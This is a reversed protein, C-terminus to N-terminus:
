QHAAAVVLGNSQPIDFCMGTERDQLFRAPDKANSQMGISIRKRRIMNPLTHNNWIFERAAGFTVVEARIYKLHERCPPEKSFLVLELNPMQTLERLLCLTYRTLGRVEPDALHCANFGVRITVSM